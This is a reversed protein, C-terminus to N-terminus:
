RLTAFNEDSLSDEVFVLSWVYFIINWEVQFIEQILKGLIQLRFHFAGTKGFQRCQLQVQWDFLATQSAPESYCPWSSSAQPYLRAGGGRRFFGCKKESPLPPPLTQVCALQHHGQLSGGGEEGEDLINLGRFFVRTRLMLVQGTRSPSWFRSFFGQLLLRYFLRISCDDDFTNPLNSNKGRKKKRGGGGRAWHQAFRINTPTITRNYGLMSYPPRPINLM